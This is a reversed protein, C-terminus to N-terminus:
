RATARPVDSGTAWRLGSAGSGGASRREERAVDIATSGGMARGTRRDPLRALPTSHSPRHLRHRYARRQLAHRSGAHDGDLRPLLGGLSSARRSRVPRTWRSRSRRRLLISWERTCGESTAASPRWIAPHSPQGRRHPATRPRLRRPRQPSSFLQWITDWSREATTATPTTPGRLALIRAYALFIAISAHPRM